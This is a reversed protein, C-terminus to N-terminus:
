ITERIVPLNNLDLGFELLKKTMQISIRRGPGLFHKELEGGKPICYNKKNRWQV